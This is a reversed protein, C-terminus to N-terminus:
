RKTLAILYSCPKDSPNAFTCSAPRGLELCDGVQLTHTDPGEQFVLVGELVWMLQHQFTFADPPYSVRANPPLDIRLLETVGGNAPSVTRRVYGTEPDVWVPQDDHRLLRGNVQEAMALLASLQLGFAGSLRGLITATPSAEGREIKSIMAKSVGSRDALEALSWKRADREQKVHLAIAASPDHFTPSM